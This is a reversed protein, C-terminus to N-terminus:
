VYKVYESYYWVGFLTGRDRYNMYSFVIDNLAFINYWHYM